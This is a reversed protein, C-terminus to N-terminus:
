NGHGYGCTEFLKKREDLISLSREDNSRHDVKLFPSRGVSLGAAMALAGTRCGLICGMVLLKGITPPAPIGALHMGLPSLRLKGPHNSEELAGMRKLSSIAAKVSVRSPPDLLKRLDM